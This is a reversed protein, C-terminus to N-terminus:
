VKQACSEMESGAEQLVWGTVVLLWGLPIITIFLFLISKPLKKLLFISLIIMGLLRIFFLLKTYFYAAM